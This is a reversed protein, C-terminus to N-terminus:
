IVNKWTCGTVIDHVTWFTVGYAAALKKLTLGEARLRRIQRVDDETLKTKIGRQMNEAHTVPELHAPNICHRNRCLHDLEKDAPVPGHVQEYAVIHARKATGNHKIAAAYGIRDREGTWLWCPTDYGSLEVQCHAKLNWIQITRRSHGLIYRVPEGKVHGYRNNPKTAIKTKEGCGCHCYGYLINGM